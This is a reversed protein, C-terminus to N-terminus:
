ARVHVARRGTPQQQVDKALILSRCRQNFGGLCPVRRNDILPGEIFRRTELTPLLRAQQGKQEECLLLSQRDTNLTQFCRKQVRRFWNAM